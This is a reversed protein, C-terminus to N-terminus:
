APRLLLHEVLRCRGRRGCGRGAVLQDAAVVRDGGKGVDHGLVAEDRDDAGTPHTLRGEGALHGAAARPHVATTCAHHLQSRDGIGRGHGVRQDGGEPQGTVATRWKLQQLASAVHIDNHQQVVALVDKVRHALHEVRNQPGLWGGQADDGGAPLQEAHGGFM